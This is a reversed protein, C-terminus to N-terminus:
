IFVRFDHSNLDVFGVELYLKRKSYSALWSPIWLRVYDLIGVIFRLKKSEFLRRHNLEKIEDLKKVSPFDKPNQASIELVQKPEVQAIKKRGQTLKGFTAMDAVEILGGKIGNSVYKLGSSIRQLISQAEKEQKIGDRIKGVASIFRVSANKQAIPKSIPM